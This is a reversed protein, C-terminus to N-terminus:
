HDPPSISIANNKISIYVTVAMYRLVDSSYLLADPIRVFFWFFRGEQTVCTM